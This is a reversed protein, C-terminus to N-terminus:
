IYCNRKQWKLLVAVYCLFFSWVYESFHFFSHKKQQKEKWIDVKCKTTKSLFSSSWLPLLHSRKLKWSDTTTRTPESDTTIYLDRRWSYHGCSLPSTVPNTTSNRMGRLESIDTYSKTPPPSSCQARHPFQLWVSVSLFFYNSIFVHLLLFWNLPFLIPNIPHYVLIPAKEMTITKIPMVSHLFGWSVTLMHSRKKAFLFRSTTKEQSLDATKSLILFISECMVKDAIVHFNTNFASAKAGGQPLFLFSCHVTSRKIGQCYQLCLWVYQYMKWFKM